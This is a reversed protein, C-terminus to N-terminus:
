HDFWTYLFPLYCFTRESVLHMNGVKWHWSIFTFDSYVPSDGGLIALNAKAEQPLLTLTVTFCGNGWKNIYVSEFDFTVCFM